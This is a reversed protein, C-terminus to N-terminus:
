PSWYKYANQLAACIEQRAVSNATHVRCKIPPIEGKFAAEEIYKSVDRGQGCEPPGLDNDLSIQTVSGTKILNIADIATKVHIDYHSPMPREDDLWVKM